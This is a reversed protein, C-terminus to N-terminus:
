NNGKSQNYDCWSVSPKLCLSIHADLLPDEKVKSMLNNNYRFHTNFMATLLSGSLGIPM